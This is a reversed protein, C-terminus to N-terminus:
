RIKKAVKKSKLALIKEADFLILWNIALEKM